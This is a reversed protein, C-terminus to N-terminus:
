TIGERRRGWKCLIACLDKCMSCRAVEPGLMDTSAIGLNVSSCVVFHLLNQILSGEPPLWNEPVGASTHSGEGQEKSCYLASLLETKGQEIDGHAVLHIQM